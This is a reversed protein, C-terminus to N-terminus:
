ADNNTLIGPRNNCQNNGSAESEDNQGRWRLNEESSTSNEQGSLYSGWRSRKFRTLQFYSSSMWSTMKMTGYKTECVRSNQNETGTKRKQCEGAKRSTFNNECELTGRFHLKGHELKSQLPRVLQRRITSFKMNQWTCSWWCIVLPKM